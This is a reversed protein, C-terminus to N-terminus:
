GGHLTGTISNRLEIPNAITRLTEITGIPLREVFRAGPYLFAVGDVYNRLQFTDRVRRESLVVAARHRRERDQLRQPAHLVATGAVVEIHRQVLALGAVAVPARDVRTVQAELAAVAHGCVPCSWWGIECELLELTPVHLANEAFLVPVDFGGGAAEADRSARQIM